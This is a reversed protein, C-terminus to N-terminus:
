LDVWGGTKGATFIADIFRQNARSDELSYVRGEGAAARAFAEAELVYQRVGPFRFVQAGGRHQDHLTVVDAGYLGANFPTAVHIFGTEGHFVMEQRQAMQTSVYFQVDFAGFDATVSAYIDTGFAPDREVRASVRVPEEGTAFRTTVSPYVGIDPLAGGGLAVVNRMNAADRNFYSFAGQVHRLRGIAGEELLAKVKLWQPHYTVMFAESMVVGHADRAAILADIEGAELAIPKECLVHKGAEAAKLSWAVHQSTPLPIYVGDVADSALLEEYSGFAHRVGFRAAVEEARSLERSAIASMVGNEADLFAPILHERAIKATSLVGWRFM